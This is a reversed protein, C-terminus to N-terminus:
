IIQLANLQVFEVVMHRQFTLVFECRLVGTECVEKQFNMSVFPEYQNFLGKECPFVAPVSGTM